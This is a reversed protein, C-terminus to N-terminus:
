SISSRQAHVAIPDDFRLDSTGVLRGGCHSGARDIANELSRVNGLWDHGLLKLCAGETFGEIRVHNEEVFKRLFHNALILIDSGRLRLPPMEIGVANLRYFLDERFRGQRVESALDRTTAAILQVNVHVSENGGVREFTREQLVHVLKIQMAMPVEGVEDLFLTGPHAQEFRGVGRKEAGEFAGKEHGFLERELLTETAEACRVSVFPDDARPGLSHITQALESKGTGSEGSILVTARTAAVQRAVRYVKQMPASGGILGRLGDGNRDRMHRRLEEIEGRLDRREIAREIALILMGIDLPKTLYDDAGARMAAVAVALDETATAVIVPVTPDQARMAKLLSMGDMNPMDLDTIVVDAGVQAFRTLAAVGDEAVDVEYGDQSLLKALADRTSAEDEVVLIRLYKGNVM